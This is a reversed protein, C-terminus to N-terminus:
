RNVLPASISANASPEAAAATVTPKRAERIAAPIDRFRRRSTKALTSFNERASNLRNEVLVSSVLVVPSMWCIWITMTMISRMTM